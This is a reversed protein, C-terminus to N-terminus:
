GLDCDKAAGRGAAWSCRSRAGVTVLLAGAIGASIGGTKPSAAVACEPKWIALYSTTLRINLVVM